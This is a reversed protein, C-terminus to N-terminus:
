SCGRPGPETKASAQDDAASAADLQAGPQAVPANAAMQLLDHIGIRAYHRGHNPDARQLSPGDRRQRYAAGGRWRAADDGGPAAAGGGGRWGSRVPECTAGAALADLV